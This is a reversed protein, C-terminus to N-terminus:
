ERVEELLAAALLAEAAEEVAAFPLGSRRAVDLLSAGSDSLNLVWLLALERDRPSEGGLARYLGRRGLQPEGRPSLNRYRRNGELVALLRLCTALSEALASPRVFDLGDASTHYHPFGGWRTRSLCGM